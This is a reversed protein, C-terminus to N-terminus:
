PQKCFGSQDLIVNGVGWTSIINAVNQDGVIVCFDLKCQKAISVEKLM